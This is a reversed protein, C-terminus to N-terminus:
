TSILCISSLHRAGARRKRRHFVGLCRWLAWLVTGVASAPVCRLPRSQAARGHGGDDAFQDCQSQNPNDM